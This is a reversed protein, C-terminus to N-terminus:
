CRIYLLDWWNKIWKQKGKYKDELFCNFQFPRCAVITRIELTFDILETVAVSLPYFWMGQYFLNYWWSTCTYSCRNLPPYSLNLNKEGRDNPITVDLHFLKDIYRKNYSLYTLCKLHDKGKSGICFKFKEEKKKYNM